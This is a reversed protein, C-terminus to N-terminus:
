FGDNDKITDYYKAIYAIDNNAQNMDDYLSVMFITPPNGVESAIKDSLAIILYLVNDRSIDEFDLGMASAGEGLVAIHCRDDYIAAVADEKTDAKMVLIDYEDYYAQYTDIWEQDVGIMAVIQQSELTM